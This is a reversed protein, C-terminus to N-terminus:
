LHIKDLDDFHHHEMGQKADIRKFPEYILINQFFLLWLYRYSDDDILGTLVLLKNEFSGFTLDM